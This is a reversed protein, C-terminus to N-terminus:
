YDKLYLHSLIYCLLHLSEPTGSESALQMVKPFNALRELAFQENSILIIFAITSNYSKM